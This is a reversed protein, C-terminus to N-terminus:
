QFLRRWPGQAGQAVHTDAPLDVGLAFTVEVVQAPTFDVERAERFTAAGRPSPIGKSCRPSGSNYRCFLPGSATAAQVLTRTPVRIISPRESRYREFHRCGYSIPSDGSGPWFFVLTNLKAVLDDFSWGDQLGANGAHLPAQDRVLVQADDITLTVHERRRVRLLQHQGARSFLESASELRGSTRIRKINRRATLHYLYPRLKAFRDLDLPM